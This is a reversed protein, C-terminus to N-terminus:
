SGVSLSVSQCAVFVASSLTAASRSLKLDRRAAVWSFLFQKVAPPEYFSRAMGAIEFSGTAPM